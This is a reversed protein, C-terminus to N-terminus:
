PTPSSPLDFVVPVSDILLSTADVTASSKDAVNWSQISASGALSSVDITAAGDADKYCLWLPYRTTTDRTGRELAHCEVGVDLFGDEKKVYDVVRTEDARLLQAMGWFPHPYNKKSEDDSIRTADVSSLPTPTPYHFSSTGSHAAEWALYDARLSSFSAFELITNGRSSKRGKGFNDSLWKLFTEIDALMAPTTKNDHNLIGFMWIRDDAQQNREAHMRNLHLQLFQVKLHALTQDEFVRGGPPGHFDAKTIQPQHHIMLVASSLDEELFTKGIRYPHFPQHGFWAVAIEHRGGGTTTYGYEEMLDVFNDDLSNYPTAQDLKLTPFLAELYREHDDWLARVFSEDQMQNAKAKKWQHSGDPDEYVSHMHLGIDHGADLWSQLLPGDEEEAAYQWFEGNGHFSLFAGYSEALKRVSDLNDRRLRYAPLDAQPEIHIKFILKIPSEYTAQNVLADATAGADNPSVVLDGEGGGDRADIQGSDQAVPVGNSCGLAVVLLGLYCKRSLLQKM